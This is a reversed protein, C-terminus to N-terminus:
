KIINEVEKLTILDVNNSLTKIGDKHNDSLAHHTKPYIIWKKETKSFPNVFFMSFNQLKALTEWNKLMFDINEKTNYCVISAHTDKIKALTSTSLQLVVIYIHEKDKYTVHISDPQKKITTIKRHILDKNKL